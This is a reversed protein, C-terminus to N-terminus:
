SDRDHITNYINEPKLILPLDVLSLSKRYQKLAERTAQYVSMSLCYSVSSSFRVSKESHGMLDFRIEGPVTGSGLLLSDSLGESMEGDSFLFYNRLGDLFSASMESIQTATGLEPESLQLADIRVLFVEGTFSDVQVEAVASGFSFERIGRASGEDDEDGIETVNGVIVPVAAIGRKYHPDSENFRIIRELRQSYSSSEMIRDWSEAIAGRQGRVAEDSQSDNDMLHMFNIKRLSHVPVEMRSSIQGIMEESIFNGVDSGDMQAMLSPPRDTSCLSCTIRIKSSCHVEDFHNMLSNRFSETMGTASGSNVEVSCDMSQITGSDDHTLRVRARVQGSGAIAMEKSGNSPRFRVVEGTRLSCLAALGAFVFLQTFRGDSCKIEREATVRVRDEDIGALSAISKALAPSDCVGVSVRVEGSSTVSVEVASLEQLCVHSPFVFDREIVELQDPGPDSMGERHLEKPDLHFSSLRVAEEIELVPPKPKYDVRVLDGSSRAISAREAVVVAVLHGMFSSQGEAFLPVDGLGCIANNKGPVDASTLVAHVGDLQAADESDISCIDACEFPSVVFAMELPSQPNKKQKSM